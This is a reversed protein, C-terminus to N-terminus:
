HSTRGLSCQLFLEAEAHPNLLTQKEGKQRQTVPVELHPTPAKSLKYFLRFQIPFFCLSENDKTENETETDLM